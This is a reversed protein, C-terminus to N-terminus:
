KGTTIRAGLLGIFGSMVIWFCLFVLSLVLSGGVLGAGIGRVTTNIPYQPLYSVLFTILYLIAGVIVGTFFGASRRAALKGAIMGSIYSVVLGILINLGEVGLMAFAVNIALRNEAIQKSAEQLISVNWLALAMQILAGLLGAISGVILVIQLRKRLPPRQMLNSPTGPTQWVQPPHAAETQQPSLTNVQIAKETQQQRRGPPSVRITPALPDLQVSIRRTPAAVQPPEKCAVEELAEAFTQVNPFRQEPNKALARMVVQEVAPSITTAKESLSLLPVPRHANTLRQLSDGYFPPTGSLWQYVVVGLAYQDTAPVPRGKIQEPAMYDITGVIEQGPFPSHSLQVTIAVGFDSLLIEDNRGVLMNEPKVDRHIIGKDHAYQLADAIQRVYPVLTTLPLITGTPHRQRLTGNPAYEMVLFPTKREVGFDMVRVIHPHLLHAITQAEQLFDKRINKHALKAQLLKIAVPTKLYLHEGLYVDAFGGHGILRVCRYNGIQQGERGGREEM